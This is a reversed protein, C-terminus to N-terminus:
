IPRHTYEDGDIRGGPIILGDCEKLQEPRRIQITKAGLSGLMDQHKAFDGQLALIGITKKTKQM